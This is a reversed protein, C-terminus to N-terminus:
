REDGRDIFTSDLRLGFLHRIRSKPDGALARYMLERGDDTWQGVSIKQRRYAVFRKICFAIVDDWTVQQRLVIPLTENRREGIAFLRITVETNSWRGEQYLATCVVDVSSDPVCGIAKLVRKLNDAEPSSWPGNIECIGTKVEAIIVNVFTSCSTVMPDDIMPRQLNERRYAFRIALLDADTRQNSGTDPHVIFNETTLFGNLRFYWYALREPSYSRSQQAATM